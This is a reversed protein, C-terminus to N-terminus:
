KAEEQKGYRLRTLISFWLYYLFAALFWGMFAGFVIHDFTLKDGVMVPLLVIVGPCWACGTRAIGDMVRRPLILSALLLIISVGAVFAALFVLGELM